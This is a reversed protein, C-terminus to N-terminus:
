RQPLQAEQSAPSPLKHPHARSNLSFYWQRCDLFILQVQTGNAMKRNITIKLTHDSLTKNYRVKQEDNIGVHIYVSRSLLYKYVRCNGAIWTHKYETTVKYQM